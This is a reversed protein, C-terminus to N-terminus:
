SVEISISRKRRISSDCFGEASSTAANRASRAEVTRTRTGFPLRCEFFLSRLRLSRASRFNSWSRSSSPPTSSSGCSSGLLGQSSSPLRTLEAGPGSTWPSNMARASETTGSTGACLMSLEDRLRRLTPLERDERATPIEPLRLQWHPSVLQRSSFARALM